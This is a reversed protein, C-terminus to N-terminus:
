IVFAILLILALIFGLGILKDVDDGVRKQGLTCVYVLSHGIGQLLVELLLEFVFAFM